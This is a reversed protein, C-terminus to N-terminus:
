HQPQKNWKRKRLSFPVIQHSLIMCIAKGFCANLLFVESRGLFNSIVMPAHDTQLIGTLM